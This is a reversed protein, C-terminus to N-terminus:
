PQSRKKLKEVATGELRFVPFRHTRGDSGRITVTESTIADVRIGPLVEDGASLLVPPKGAQIRIVVRIGRSKIVGLIEYEGSASRPDGAPSPEPTRHLRFVDLKGSRFERPTLRSLTPIREPIEVQEATEGPRSLEQRYERWARWKSVTEMCIAGTALLCVAPVILRGIRIRTKSM